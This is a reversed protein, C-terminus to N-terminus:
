LRYEYQTEELQSPEDGIDSHSAREDGELTQNFTGKKTIDVRVIRNLHTVWVQVWGKRVGTDQSIKRKPM